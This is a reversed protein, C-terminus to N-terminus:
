LERTLKPTEVPNVVLPYKELVMNSKELGFNVSEKVSLYKLNFYSKMVFHKWAPMDSDYSLFSDMTVFRFDGVPSQQYSNEGHTAMDIEGSSLLEKVVQRFYFDIRPEIRFGLNFTIFYLDNKAITDVSYKLAYPEDLVNVHIFWYVDARKPRGSYLISNLVTQEIKRETVSSTLYVLNTSYKPISEDM